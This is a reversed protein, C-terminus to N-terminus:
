RAQVLERVQDLSPLAQSGGVEGALGRQGLDIGHDAVLAPAALHLGPVQRAEHRDGALQSEAV